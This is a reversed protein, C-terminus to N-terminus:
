KNEVFKKKFIYILKKNIYIANENKLLIINHLLQTFKFMKLNILRLMITEGLRFTIDHKKFIDSYLDAYKIRLSVEHTEVLFASKQRIKAIEIIEQMTHSLGHKSLFHETLNWFLIMDEFHKQTKVRSVSNENYQIYHYYSNKIQVVKNAYFLLKVLLYKDENFILGYNNEYGCYVYLSRKILKNCLSASIKTDSLLSKINEYKNESVYDKLISSKNHYEFIIDSVVIDSNTKIAKSFLCEIMNPEIYDDSDIMLIYKCNTNQIGISRSTAAGLNNANKLIKVQNKRKPFLDLAKLLIEYSGDNSADDIFLYEINEFSQLFLSNACRFIYREVNYFPIILAVNNMM